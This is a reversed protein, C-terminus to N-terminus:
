TSLHKWTKGRRIHKYIHMTADPHAALIDRRRVGEAIMRQISAATDSTIKALGALEGLPRYSRRPGCYGSFRQAPTTGSRGVLFLASVGNEEATSM